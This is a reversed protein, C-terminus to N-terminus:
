RKSYDPRELWLVVEKLVAVPDKMGPNVIERENSSERIATADEPAAMFGRRKALKQGPKLWYSGYFDSGVIMLREDAALRKPTKLVIRDALSFCEAIQAAAAKSDMYGGGWGLHLFMQLGEFVLYYQIAYSNMGHGSHALVAYDTVQPGEDVYADLAYPSMPLDRTSFLWKGHQKLQAALKGPINPFSLNAQRFLQEAKDIDLM